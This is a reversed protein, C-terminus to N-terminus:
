KFQILYVSGFHGNLVSYALGMNSIRLVLRSLVGHGNQVPIKDWALLIIIFFHQKKSYNPKLKFLTIAQNRELPKSYKLDNTKSVYHTISDKTGQVSKMLSKEQLHLTM